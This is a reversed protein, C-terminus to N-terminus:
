NDLSYMLQDLLVPIDAAPVGASVLDPVDNGFSQLFAGVDDGGKRISQMYEEVARRMEGSAFAVHGANLYDQATPKAELILDYYKRAQEYKGVLFSCWAIPRWTKTNSPDLYEVKFYYKLAEDYQKQELYCHGINMQISLNDPKLRGARRYYELARESNKLNRYCLAIRRVTWAHDPRIIDAKLYYQLAREYDSLMQYCYGIKQVIEEDPEGEGALSLFLDLADAYHEKRFFYEAILRITEGDEFFSKLAPQQDLRLSLDFPDDFEHRRPHLKFFRYLDQVYQNSVIEERGGKRKMAAEERELHKLQEGDANLQGMMMNRQSEPLQVLSLCFSYKDSNCLFSSQTLVGQLTSVAKGKPFVAQLAPNEPYFPLFWNSLSSFFPFSKLQSFTSMFVDAGEMQLESLERIKDSVGARDFLEQWEPNKDVSEPDSFLDDTKIKNYLSPSIKMMEPLIEDHLKRSIKETDRSKILQLYVSKLRERFDPSEGYAELRNMLASSLAVRDGYKCVLLVVAVLARQSVGPDASQTADLLVGFAPEEYRCMLRMLVASVLLATFYTPFYDPRLADSLAEMDLDPETWVASFLEGMLRDLERRVAGVDTAALEQESLLGQLSITEFLQEVEKLREGLSRPLATAAYRRQSYYLTTSERMMWVDIVRDTLTYASLVLKHYVKDREPDHVGDLMYRIMYRYSQELESLSESLEWQQLPLALERLRAFVEKLRRGDM